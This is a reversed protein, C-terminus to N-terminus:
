AAKRRRKPAPAVYYFARDEYHEVHRLLEDESSCMGAFTMIDQNENAPHNQTRSLRAMLDPADKWSFQAATM